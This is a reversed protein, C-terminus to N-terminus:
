RKGQEIAAAVGQQLTAYSRLSSLDVGLGVLAQAVEPKIGTLFAKAGLLRVGAAADLLGRAVQTDVMSIGTIDIIAIRARNREIGELLAQGIERSRQASLLGVLPLVVVQESIPIIPTALQELAEAQATIIKSQLQDREESRHRLEATREEVQAELSAALQQLRQEREGISAAMINFAQGVQGIEDARQVQVRAGQDGRQIQEAATRLMGLPRFVQRNLLWTLSGVTLLAFVLLVAALILGTTYPATVAESVPLEAVVIWNTDAVAAAASMVEVGRFNVYESILVEGAMESAALAPHDAIVTGDRVLQPDPFALLSGTRDILYLTGTRGLRAQAIISWLERARVRMATVDARDRPGISPAGENSNIGITLYAEGDADYMIGSLYAGRNATAQYWPSMVLPLQNALIAPGASAILEGREDVRILELLEPDRRLQGIPVELAERLRAKSFAGLTALNGREQRLYSGVTASTALAADAQRAEWALQDNQFIVTFVALGGLLLALSLTVAMTALLATRLSQQRAPASTPQSPPSAATM